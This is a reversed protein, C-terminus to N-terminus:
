EEVIELRHSYVSTIHIGNEKESYRVWCTMNNIRLAALYSSDERNFFREGSTLSHDVVKKIDEALISRRDMIDEIEKPITLDFKSRDPKDM